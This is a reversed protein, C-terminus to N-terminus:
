RGCYQNYLNVVMIIEKKSLKKRTEIFEKAKPCNDFYNIKKTKIFEGEGESFLLEKPRGKFFTSKYEGKRHVYYNNDMRIHNDYGNTVPIQEFYLSCYGEVLAHLLKIKGNPLVVTNRESRYRVWVKRKDNNKESDWIVDDKYLFKRKKQYIGNDIVKVIDKLPLAIDKLVKENINEIREQEIEFTSTILYDKHVIITKFNDIIRTGDKKIITDNPINQALFKLCINSLLIILIIYKKRM